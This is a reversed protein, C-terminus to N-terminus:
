LTKLNEASTKGRSPDAKAEFSVKQWDHSKACAAGEGPNAAPPRSIVSGSPMPGAAATGAAVSGAAAAGAVESGWAVESAAAVEAFGPTAAAMVAAMAAVAM